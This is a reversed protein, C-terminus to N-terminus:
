QCRKTEDLVAKNGVHPQWGPGQQALTNDQALFIPKAIEPKSPFDEKLQLTVLTNGRSPIGQEVIIGQESPHRALVGWSASSSAM